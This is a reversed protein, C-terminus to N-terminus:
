GQGLNTLVMLPVASLAAVTLLVLYTWGLTASLRGNAHEGMVDRDGAVLLVPLYTAPMAVVGFIVSYETLEIPNVGTAAVVLAIAIFVMWTLSFRPVESPRKAKGWPWGLFQALNYAGSLATDIAAGSVAFLIGALGLLLGIQGLPNAAALGVTGLFDPAIGVPLFLEASVTILTISLLAGISFGAISTIRNMRLDDPARWGEEVGGSSYFYVEYPMLAASFLGVAFYAWILHDSTAVHPVFGRALQGWDPGLAVAGVTFAVLLLGGFGFVREIWDFPLLWVAILLGIGAAVVLLRYDGGTLLRLVLAMGGVEATCTLLSVALSAILTILAAGYGLRTRVADFVPRQTVVAVRGCMESFVIIGLAGIVVIWIVQYGFMAGAATNFVIDGIDVFGGIAALVGLALQLPKV